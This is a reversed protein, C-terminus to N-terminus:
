HYYIVDYDPEFSFGLASIAPDSLITKIPHSQFSPFSVNCTLFCLRPSALFSVNHPILFIFPALRLSEPSTSNLSVHHKLMYIRPELVRYFPFNLFAFHLAWGM